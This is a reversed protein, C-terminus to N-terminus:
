AWWARDIVALAALELRGVETLLATPTIALLRVWESDINM